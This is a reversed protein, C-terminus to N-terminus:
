RPSPPASSRRPSGSSGKCGAACVQRRASSCRALVPRLTITATTSLPTSALWGSRAPWSASRWFKTSTAKGSAASLWPVATAPMMAACAPLPRPMAPMAGCALSIAKRAQQSIVRWSVRQLLKVSPLASCKATVLSARTMLRLRPPGGSRRSCVRISVARARPMATIPATSGSRASPPKGADYGPTIATVDLPSRRAKGAPARCAGPVSMGAVSGPARQPMTDPEDYAAAWTAPSAASIMASFGDAAAGDRRAKTVAARVLRTACSAM